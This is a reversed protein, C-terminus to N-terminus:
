RTRGVAKEKWRDMLERPVTVKIHGTAAQQRAKAFWEQEAEKDRKGGPFLVAHDYGIGKRGVIHQIM